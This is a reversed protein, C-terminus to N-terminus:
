RDGGHNAAPHVQGNRQPRPCRDQGRPLLQAIIDKLVTKDPPHTRSLKYMTYIYQSSMAGESSLLASAVRGDPSNARRFVQVMPPHLMRWSRGIIPVHPRQDADGGRLQTGARQRRRAPVTLRRVGLHREPHGIQPREVGGPRDGDHERRDAGIVERRQEIAEVADAQGAARVEVRRGVARVVAVVCSPGVSGLRSANSSLRARRASARLRGIRAM